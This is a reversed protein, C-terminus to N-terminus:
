PSPVRCRRMQELDGCWRIQGRLALLERRRRRNVYEALAANVAAQKTGHGGRRMAEMLLHKDLDLHTKVFGM